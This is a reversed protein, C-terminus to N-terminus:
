IRVNTWTCCAAFEGHEQSPAGCQGGQGEGGDAEVFLVPLVLGIVSKM